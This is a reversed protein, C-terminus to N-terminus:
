NSGRLAETPHVKTARQAPFYSALAGIVVFIVPTIVFTPLDFVSIKYLLGSMQNQFLRAAILGVTIGIAIGIVSLTVGQRVVLRLIHSKEAGLAQRIGLEQRRQMVAYSLV